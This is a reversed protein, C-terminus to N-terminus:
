KVQEVDKSDLVLYGSYRGINKVRPLETLPLNKQRLLAMDREEYDRMIVTRQGYNLFFEGMYTVKGAVIEFKGNPIRIPTGPHADLPYFQYTGVKLRVAHLLGFHDSFDSKHVQSSLALDALIDTKFRSQAPAVMLYVGYGFKDVFNTGTSLVLYGDDNAANAPLINKPDFRGTLGLCGSLTLAALLAALLNATFCKMKKM